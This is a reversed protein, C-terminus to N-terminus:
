SNAHIVIEFGEDEAPPVYYAMFQHFQAETAAFPHDGAANRAKLRSLCVEDPVDLVHLTHAAGADTFIGRMWERNAITNAHFDLVVSTGAKLLASIHPGMASQLKQSCRVFDAGTKMQGSFLAALWDDESIIITSPANGLKAALSSKGAAIKGCLMHLRPRTDTM